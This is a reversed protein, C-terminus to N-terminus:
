EDAPATGDSAGSDVDDDDDDARGKDRGSASGGAASVRGAATRDVAASATPCREIRAAPGAMEAAAAAGACAGDDDRGAAAAAAAVADDDDEGLRGAAAVRGCRRLPTLADCAAFGDTALAAAGEADARLRAVM